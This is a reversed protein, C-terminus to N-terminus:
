FISLIVYMGSASLLPVSFNDDLGLPLMEVFTAILAGLLFIHFPFSIFQLLVYGGILCANLHALSGEFSKDFIKHHGFLIGFIKSFFDGLILFVAALVAIEKEFLLVTVFFAFLFLTISSFKKYEKSKYFKKVTKFFFVNIKKYFLRFIDLCFFLFMLIGILVLAASKSTNIYHIVLLIAFPRLYLRWSMEERILQRSQLIEEERFLNWINFFLIYLIITLIYINYETAPSFSVIMASLIPFIVMGVWEGKRTIIGFSLVCLALFALSEWPMWGNIYFLSLYYILIATATAVGQGGKYQLYFPFVHGVIAMIGVMHILAPSAGLFHVFFMPLLGKSIDFLATLVAPWKGLVHYANVTGANGTGQKRIDVGKLVKGLFYSPSITGLFYSGALALASSFADM